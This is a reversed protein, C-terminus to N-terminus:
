RFLEAAANIHRIKQTAITVCTLPKGCIWLVTSIHEPKEIRILLPPSEM